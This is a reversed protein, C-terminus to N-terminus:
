LHRYDMCPYTNKPCEDIWKSIIALMHNQDKPFVGSLPFNNSVHNARFIIKKDKLEIAKIIEKMEILLERHSLIAFKKKEILHELATKPVVTVTLFSLFEPAIRNVVEATEKAHLSSFERGGIGLLAILSVKINCESLLNCSQIIEEKTNGKKILQLVEDSGSELGIYCITLGAQKMRRLDARDKKILNLASAYISFRTITPFESKIIEIVSVILDTPAAMADGDCLFAKTLVATTHEYYKRADLIDQTIEELTRVRYKKTQYMGCFICKNHSCGLTTQVLLSNSESPPRFLPQDYKIMTL